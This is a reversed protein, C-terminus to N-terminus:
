RWYTVTYAISRQNIEMILDFGDPVGPAAVADFIYLEEFEEKTKVRAVEYREQM